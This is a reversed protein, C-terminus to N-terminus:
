WPFDRTSFDVLSLFSLTDVAEAEEEDEEEDEEEEVEKRQLDRDRQSPVILHTKALGKHSPPWAGNTQARGRETELGAGIILFVSM